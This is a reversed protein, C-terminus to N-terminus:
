DCQNPKFTNSSWIILVVLTKIVLSLIDFINDLNGAFQAHIGDGKRTHLILPLYVRTAFVGFLTFFVPLMLVLVKIPDPLSSFIMGVEIMYTVWSTAFTTWSIFLLSALVNQLLPKDDPSGTQPARNEFLRWAVKHMPIGVLNTVVMTVYTVAYTWGPSFTVISQVAIILVPATLSYEFYRTTIKDMVNKPLKGKIEGLHWLQPVGWTETEPSRSAHLLQRFIALCVLVYTLVVNNLPLEPTYVATLVLLAYNWLISFYNLPRNDEAIYDLAFSATIWEFVMMLFVINNVGGLTYDLMGYEIEVSPMVGGSKGVYDCSQTEASYDRCTDKLDEHQSHTKIGQLSFVPNYDKNYSYSQYRYDVLVPWIRRWGDQVQTAPYTTFSNSDCKGSTIFWGLLFSSFCLHVLFASYKLYKGMIRLQICGVYINVNDVQTVVHPIDERMTLVSSLM